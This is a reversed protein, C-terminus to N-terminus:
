SDGVELLTKGDPKRSVVSCKNTAPDQAVYYHTEALAPAALSAVIASVTLIRVVM